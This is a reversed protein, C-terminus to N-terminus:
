RPRKREHEARALSEVLESAAQRLRFIAEEIHSLLRSHEEGLAKSKTRLAEFRELTDALERDM